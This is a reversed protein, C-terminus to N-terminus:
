ANLKNEVETIIDDSDKNDLKVWVISYYKNDKGKRSPFSIFDGKSGEVVSCGYIKVGNLTMDFMVTGNDLMHTRDVSFSTVEITDKETGKGKGSTSPKNM